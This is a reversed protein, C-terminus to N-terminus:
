CTPRCASRRHRAAADSAAGGATASPAIPRRSAPLDHDRDREVVLVFAGFWLMTHRWGVHDIGFQLLPPWIAGAVAQGSAILAVASGRRREFWLSVYTLLPSFMCSTGFLGMLVGHGVYLEFLGGLSSLLLGAAVM